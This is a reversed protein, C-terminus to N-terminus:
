QTDSGTGEAESEEFEKFQDKFVIYKRGTFNIAISAAITVILALYENWDRTAVLWAGFPTGIFWGVLAIAYFLTLERAITEKTGKGVSFVWFRNSIFVTVSSVIFAAANAFIYSLGQDGNDASDFVAENMIAFVAAYVGTGALGAIIYRGFQKSLANM